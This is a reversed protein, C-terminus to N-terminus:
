WNEQNYLSISAQKDDIAYILDLKDTTKVFRDYEKSHILKGTTPDFFSVKKQSIIVVPLNNEHGAQFIKFTRKGTPVIKKNSLDEANFISVDDTKVNVVFLTKQNLSLMMTNNSLKFGPAYAVGTAAGTAAMVALNFLANGVKKGKSGTHDSGIFKYKEFDILGIKAGFNANVYVRTLDKSVIGGELKFPSKIGISKEPHKVDFKVVSQKGFILLIEDEEVAYGKIHEVVTDTNINSIDNFEGNELSVIKLHKPEDFSRGIFLLKGNMVFAQPLVSSKFNDLLQKKNFDYVMLSYNNTEPKQSNIYKETISLYNTSSTTNIFKGKMPIEVIKELTDALYLTLKNGSGLKLQRSWIYRYNDSTHTIIKKKILPIEKVIKGSQADLSILRQKTKKGVQAILHKGDESIIIFKYKSNRQKTRTVKDIWVEQIIKQDSLSVVQVLAQSKKSETYLYIYDSGEHGLFYAAKKYSDALQIKKVVENTSKDIISLIHHHVKKEHKTNLSSTYETASISFSLVLFFLVTYKVYFEM